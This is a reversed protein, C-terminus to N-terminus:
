RPLRSLLANARNNYQTREASGEPYESGLHSLGDSAYRIHYLGAEVHKASKEYLKAARDHYETRETPRIPYDSGLDRLQDASWQIHDPTATAHNGALEYLAATRDHYAPGLERLERAIYKIDDPNANKDKAALEYLAAARNNYEARNASGAPCQFGLAKLGDAASRIYDPIVTAHKASKEYLAAARDHYEARKSSGKPYEIGLVKLRDAVFHIDKQTATLDQASKEYLIRARDHYNSGLYHLGDAARLSDDPTATAHNGALEYLAASRDILRLMRLKYATRLIDDPIVDDHNAYLEYLIAVREHYNSGLDRFADAASRIHDAASAHNAALEYLAASRDILRLMRLEYAARLIYDPTATAHNAVLEYFAATRDNYAPGLDRLGHATWLIHDLTATAHSAALEYLAASRDILRFMRLGGAARLIDEPTATPRHAYRELLTATGNYAPGLDELGRRASQIQDPTATAHSAVLAFLAAARDYYATRKDSGDPYTAGLDKLGRSANLIEEPTANPLLGKLICKQTDTFTPHTDVFAVLATHEDAPMPMTWSKVAFAAKLVNDFPVTTNIGLFALMSHNEFTLPFGELLRPIVNSLRWANLKDLMPKAVKRWNTSVLALRYVDKQDLFGLTIIDMSNQSACESLQEAVEKSLDKAVKGSLQKAVDVPFVLTSQPRQSPLQKLRAIETHAFESYIQTNSLDMSVKYAQIALNPYGLKELEGVVFTVDSLNSDHNLSKLYLRAAAAPRGIQTLRFTRNSLEVISSQTTVTAPDVPLDLTGGFVTPLTLVTTMLLSQLTHKM